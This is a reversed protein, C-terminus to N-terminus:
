GSNPAVKLNSTTPVGPDLPAAHLKEPHRELDPASEPHMELANELREELEIQALHRSEGKQDINSMSLTRM